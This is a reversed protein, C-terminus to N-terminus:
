VRQALADMIRQTADIGVDARLLSSELAELVEDDIAKKGLLLNGIGSSLATRTKALGGRLRRLFGRETNEDNQGVITRKSGTARARGVLCANFSTRMIPPLHLRRFSANGSRGVSRGVGSRARSVTNLQNAGHISPARHRSRNAPEPASPKSASDRPAASTVSISSSGATIRASCALARVSSAAPQVIRLDLASSKRRLSSDVHSMTKRSGGNADSKSSRASTASSSPGRSCGFDIM